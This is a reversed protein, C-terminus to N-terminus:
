PMLYCHIPKSCSPPLPKCNEGLQRLTSGIMDLNVPLGKSTEVFSLFIVNTDDITRNGPVKRFITDATKRNDGAFCRGIIELGEATKIALEIFYQKNIM